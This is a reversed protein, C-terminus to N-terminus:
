LKFIKFTRIRSLGERVEVLYVGSQYSTLDIESTFNSEILNGSIDYLFAKMRNQFGNIFVKDYTPNPFISVVSDLLANEIPNTLDIELTCEPNQMAVSISNIEPFQVNLELFVPIRQGYYNPLFYHPGTNASISDGNEDFVQFSTYGSNLGNFDSNNYSIMLVANPGNGFYIPYIGEISYDSCNFEDKLPLVLMDPKEYSIPITCTPAITRIYGEFSDPLTSIQQSYDLHYAFTDRAFHPLEFCYCTEETVANWDKDFLQLSTYVNYNSDREEATNSLLIVIGQSVSLDPFVEVVPYDSCFDQGALQICSLLALIITFSRKMAPNM